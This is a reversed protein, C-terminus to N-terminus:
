NGTGAGGGGGLKSRLCVGNLHARPGNLLFGQDADFVAHKIGVRTEDEDM